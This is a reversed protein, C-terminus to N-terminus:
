RRMRIDGVNVNVMEDDESMLWYTNKNSFANDPLYYIPSSFGWGPDSLTHTYRDLHFSVAEYMDRGGWMMMSGLLRFTESNIPYEYGDDYWIGSDPDTIYNRDDYDDLYIVGVGGNKVYVDAYLLKDWSRLEWHYPNYPDDDDLDMSRNTVDKGIYVNGDRAFRFGYKNGKSLFDFHQNDSTDSDEYNILGIKDWIWFSYGSCTGADVDPTTEGPELEYSADKCGKLLFGLREGYPIKSLNPIDANKEPDAALDVEYVPIKDEKIDGPVPIVDGLLSMRKGVLTIKFNYQIMNKWNPHYIKAEVGNKSYGGFYNEFGNETIPVVRTWEYQWNPNYTSDAVLPNIDDSPYLVFYDSYGILQELVDHRIKEKIDDPIPATDLSEPGEWWGPPCNNAAYPDPDVCHENWRVTIDFDALYVNKPDDPDYTFKYEGEKLSYTYDYRAYGFPSNFLQSGDTLLTSSGRINPTVEPSFSVKCLDGWIPIWTDKEPQCPTVLYLDANDGFDVLIGKGTSSNAQLDLDTSSGTLECGHKYECSGPAYRLFTHLEGGVNETYLTIVYSDTASVTIEDGNDLARKAPALDGDEVLEDWTHGTFFTDFLRNDSTAFGKTLLIDTYFNGLTVNDGSLDQPSMLQSNVAHYEWYIFDESDPVISGDSYVVWNASAVFRYWPINLSVYKNKEIDNWPDNTEPTDWDEDRISKRTLSVLAYRRFKGATPDYITIYKNGSNTDVWLSGSSPIVKNSNDEPGNGFLIGDVSFYSGGYHYQGYAVVSDMVHDDILENGKYQLYKSSKAFPDTEGPNYVEWTNLATRVPRFNVITSDDAPKEWVDGKVRLQEGWEKANGTAMVITESNKWSLDFSVDSAVKRYENALVDGTRNYEAVLDNYIKSVSNGLYTTVAVIRISHDSPVDSSGSNNTADLYFAGKSLMIENPSVGVAALSSLDPMPYYRLFNYADTTDGPVYKMVKVMDSNEWVDYVYSYDDDGDTLERTEEFRLVATIDSVMQQSLFKGKVYAYIRWNFLVQSVLITLMIMFVVTFVLVLLLASGREESLKQKKVGKM